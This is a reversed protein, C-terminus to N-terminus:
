WIGDNSTTITTSWENTVGRTITIIKNEKKMADEAKNIMGSVYTCDINLKKDQISTIMGLCVKIKDVYKNEIRIIGKKSQNDYKVNMIGAKGADFVGLLSNCEKIIEENLRPIQANGITNISYVM